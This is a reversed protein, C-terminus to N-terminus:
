MVPAQLGVARGLWASTRCVVGLCLTYHPASGSHSNSHLVRVYSSACTPAIRALVPGERAKPVTTPRTGHGRGGCRSRDVIWAPKGVSAGSRQRPKLRRSGTSTAATFPLGGEAPEDGRIDRYLDDVAPDGRRRGPAPRRV